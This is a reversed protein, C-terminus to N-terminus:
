RHHDHQRTDGITEAQRHRDAERSAVGANSPGFHSTTVQQQYVDSTALSEMRSSRLPGEANMNQPPSIIRPSTTGATIETTLRKAPSTELTRNIIAIAECVIPAKARLYQRKFTPM